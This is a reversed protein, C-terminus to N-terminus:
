DRMSHVSTFVREHCSMLTILSYNRTYTGIVMLIKFIQKRNGIVLIEPEFVSM